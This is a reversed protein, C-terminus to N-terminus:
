SHVEFLTSTNNPAARFKSWLKNECTTFVGFSMGVFDCRSFNWFPRTTCSVDFSSTLKSGETTRGRGLLHRSTCIWVTALINRQQFTVSFFLNRESYFVVRPPFLLPISFFSFQSGLSLVAFNARVRFFLNNLVSVCLFSFAHVNRFSAPKKM